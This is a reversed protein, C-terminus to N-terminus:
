QYLASQEPSLSKFSIRPHPEMGQATTGAVRKETHNLCYPEQSDWFPHRIRSFSGCPWRLYSRGKNSRISSRMDRQTKEVPLEAEQTCSRQPACWLVWVALLRHMVDNEPINNTNSCKSPMRSARFKPIFFYGGFLHTPLFRKSYKGIDM